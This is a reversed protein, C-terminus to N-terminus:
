IHPKAPGAGDLLHQLRQAHETVGAMGLEQASARAQDILARARERDDSDGRKLLMDAFAIQTDVLFTRAGMRETMSLAASFYEEARTWDARIAALLGLYYWGPKLFAGANGGLLIREGYPLLLDELREANAVDGLVACTEALLGMCGLWFYGTHQLVAWGGEAIEEFEARAHDINGSQADLWLFQIRAFLRAPQRSYQAVHQRYEREVFENVEVVRGQAHRISLLLGSYQNINDPWLSRAEDMLTEAETFRGALFANLARMLLAAWRHLPMRSLGALLVYLDFARKVEDFDGAEMIWFWRYLVGWARIYPDRISDVMAMLEATEQLRETLNDHRYLPSQRLTLAFALATPDEIRRAMAVAEDSLARSREPTSTETGWYDTALRALLRVRQLSDAHNLASLAEELLQVQELGGVTV